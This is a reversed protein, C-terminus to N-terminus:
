ATSRRRRGDCDRHCERGQSRYRWAWYGQWGSCYRGGDQLYCFGEDGGSRQLHRSAILSASGSGRKFEHYYDRPQNGNTHSARRSGTSRRGASGFSNRFDVWDRHGAGSSFWHRPFVYRRCFGSEAKEDTRWKAIALIDANSVSISETQQLLLTSTVVAISM